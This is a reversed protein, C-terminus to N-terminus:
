IFRGVKSYKGFHWVMGQIVQSILEEMNLREYGHEYEISQLDTTPSKGSINLILGCLSTRRIQNLSCTFGSAPAASVDRLYLTGPSRLSTSSSSLFKESSQENVKEKKLRCVQLNRTSTMARSERPEPLSRCPHIFAQYIRHGRPWLSLLLAMFSSSFLALRECVWSPCIIHGQINVDARKQQQAHPLFRCIGSEDDVM